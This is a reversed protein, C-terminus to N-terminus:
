QALVEDLREMSERVGREMGSAIMADRNEVTTYVSRTSVRTRGGGLDEFRATELSVQNPAGEFEFTQIILEDAVV